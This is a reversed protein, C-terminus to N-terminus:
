EDAPFHGADVPNRASAFLPPTQIRAANRDESGPSYCRDRERTRRSRSVKKEFLHYSSSPSKPRGARGGLLGRRSTSCPIADGSIPGSHVFLDIAQGSLPKTSLGSVPQVATRAIIRVIVMRNEFSRPQPHSLTKPSYLERITRAHPIVQHALCTPRLDGM